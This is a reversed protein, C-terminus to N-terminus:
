TDRRNGAGTGKRQIGCHCVLGVGGSNVIVLVDIEKTEEYLALVRGTFDSCKKENDGFLAAARQKADDIVDQPIGSFDNIELIENEGMEGAKAPVITSPACLVIVMSIAVTLFVGIQVKRAQNM